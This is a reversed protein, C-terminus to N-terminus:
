ISNFRSIDSAVLLLNLFRFTNPDFLVEKFDEFSFTEAMDKRTVAYQWQAILMPHYHRNLVFNAKQATLFKGANFSVM